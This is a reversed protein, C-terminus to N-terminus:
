CRSSSSPSSARRPARRGATSRSSAASPRPRTPRAAGQRLGRGRRAGIAVGCPNAHKVIVCRRRTSARSASGRRTPTPSTTTRSSRARCSGPRARALGARAALDRLVRREPAPERRLAPGADQRLATAGAGPVRSREARRREAGACRRCTTAIAGDYSATHAFAKSPSRSAADRESVAGDRKLEALVGAYDAPDIVVAVDHWNKAASRLMAPGGIDINEIAEDLTCGASPSPRRSRISTSWWCTSRARHRAADLAAMHTPADRRALLGGHIKPHLTKVRGDLM